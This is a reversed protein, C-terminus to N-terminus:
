ATEETYFQRPTRYDLASHPRPNNYREFWDALGKGLERPTAYAKLYIDEYKVSRWLREIRVNDIWRGKGDMCVLIGADKVRKIWAASTYQGGQDSNMIQPCRGTALAMTLADLCLTTEMTASVAWGLTEHVHMSDLLVM